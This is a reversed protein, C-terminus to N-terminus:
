LYYINHAAITIGIIRTITILLLIIAIITITIIFTIIINTIATNIITTIAMAISIISTNTAAASTITSANFPHHQHRDHYYNDRPAQPQSM